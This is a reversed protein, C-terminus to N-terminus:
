ADSRYRRIAEKVLGALYVESFGPEMPTARMGEIIV